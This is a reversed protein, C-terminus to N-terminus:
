LTLKDTNCLSHQLSSFRPAPIYFFRKELGPSSPPPPFPLQHSTPCFLMFNCFFSESIGSLTGQSIMSHDTLCVSCLPKSIHHRQGEGDSGQTFGPGLLKWGISYINVSAAAATVTWKSTGRRTCLQIFSWGTITGLLRGPIHYLVSSDQPMLRVPDEFSRKEAQSFTNM